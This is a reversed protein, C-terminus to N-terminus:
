RRTDTSKRGIRSSQSDPQQGAPLLRAPLERALLTAAATEPLLLGRVMAHVPVPRV